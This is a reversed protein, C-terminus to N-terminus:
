NANRRRRGIAAAKHLYNIAAQAARRRRVSITAEPRHPPVTLAPKIM